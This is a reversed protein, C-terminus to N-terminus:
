SKDNSNGNHIHIDYITFGKFKKRFHCLYYVPNYRELIHSVQCKHYNNQTSVFLSHFTIYHNIENM